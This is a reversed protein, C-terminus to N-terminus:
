KTDEKRKQNQNKRKQVDLEKHCTEEENFLLGIKFLIYQESLSKQKQISM